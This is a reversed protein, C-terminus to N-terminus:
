LVIAKAKLADIQGDALREHYYGAMPFGIPPTIDVEAVGVRLSGCIRSDAPQALAASATVSGVLAALMALIGLRIMTGTTAPMTVGTVDTRHSDYDQVKCNGVM